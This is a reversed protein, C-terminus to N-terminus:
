RRFRRPMVTGLYRCGRHTWRELLTTQLYYSSHDPTAPITVRTSSEPQRTSTNEKILKVMRPFLNYEELIRRRAEAIAERNKEALNSKVLEGIQRPAAPDNIDVWIFSERPFYEAINTAGFYLPMTWALYCDALKETWYDPGSYNEVAIAYRYPALGDWKDALPDFGRGFLDFSTGSKRLRELFRLRLRHGEHIAANSTIWSLNSTKPPPTLSKLEDYSKGVHWPLSGHAHIFRQGQLRGDQTYVRSYHPFGKEFCRYAALPPEQVFCWINRPPVQVTTKVPVHNLAILHDCDDVPDLTFRIDNWIGSAGPTQRLLDPSTWSKVIRVLIM